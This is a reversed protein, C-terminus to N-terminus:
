GPCERDADAPEPHAREHSAYISALGRLTLLEDFEGPEEAGLERRQERILRDILGAFGLRLGADLCQQTSHGIPKVDGRPRHELWGTDVM